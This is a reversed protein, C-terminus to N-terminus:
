PRVEAELDDLLSDILKDDLATDIIRRALEAVTIQRRAAHPQLRRMTDGDFLVNRYGDAILQKTRRASTELAIVTKPEIGIRAAIDETSCKESRLAAVAATRSAYGLTPKAAGM